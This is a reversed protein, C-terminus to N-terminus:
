VGSSLVNLQGCNRRQCYRIIKMREASLLQQQSGIGFRRFRAFNRSFKLKPRYCNLTMWICGDQQWDFTCIHCGIFLLKQSYRSGNEFYQRKFSYFVAQKGLRRKNSPGARKSGMLIRPHFKGRLFLLPPPVTYQFNWLGLKLQKQSIWGHSLCLSLCVSPRHGIAYCALCISMHQWAIFFRDFIIYSFATSHISIVMVTITPEVTLM